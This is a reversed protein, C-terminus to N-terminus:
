SSALPRHRYFFLIWHSTMWYCLAGGLMLGYAGLSGVLAFQLGVSLAAQVPLYAGIVGVRNTALYILAFCETWIKNIAVLFLAALMTRDVQAINEPLLHGTWNLFAFAALCAFAMYVLGIAFSVYVIRLMADVEGRAHAQAVRSWNAVLLASFPFYSFSVIKGAIAYDAYVDAPLSSFAIFQDFQIVVLSLLTVWLYKGADRFAARNLAAKLLRRVRSWDSTLRLPFRRGLLVLPVAAYPVFYGIIAAEVRVAPEVTALALATGVLALLNQLVGLLAVRKFQGLGSMARAALMALGAVFLSVLMVSAGLLNELLPSGTSRMWAWAACAIPFFAMAAALAAAAVHRHVFRSVVASSQGRGVCAAAANQLMPGFGFDLVPLWAVLGVSFAFVAFQDTELESAGVGLAIVNCASSFLRAGWLAGIDLWHKRSNM